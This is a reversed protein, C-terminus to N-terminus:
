DATPTWGYRPNVGHVGIRFHFDFNSNSILYYHNFHSKRDQTMRNIIGKIHYRSENVQNMLYRFTRLKDGNFESQLMYNTISNPEFDKDITDKASGFIDNELAGINCMFMCLSDNKNLYKVMEPDPLLCSKIMPLGITVQRLHQHDKPNLFRGEEASTRMLPQEEDICEAYHRIADCCARYNTPHLTDCMEEEFLIHLRHVREISMCVDKRIGYKNMYYKIDSKFTSAEKRYTGSYIKQLQQCFKRGVSWWEDSKSLVEMPDDQLFLLALCKSAIIHQATSIGPVGQGVRGCQQIVFNKYKGPVYELGEWKSLINMRNIIDNNDWNKRFSVYSEPELYHYAIDTKSDAKNGAKCLEYDTSM